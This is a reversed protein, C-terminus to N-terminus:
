TAVGKKEQEAEIAEQVEQRHIPISPDAEFGLRCKDGTIEVVRVVIEGDIVVSEGVKRSLVLM